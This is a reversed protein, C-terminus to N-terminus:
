THEFEILFHDGLHENDVSWRFHIIRASLTAELHNFSIKSASTDKEEESAYSSFDCLLLTIILLIQGRSFRMTNYNISQICLFIIRVLRKLLYYYISNNVIAINTIM